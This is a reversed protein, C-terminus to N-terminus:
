MVFCFISIMMSLWATTHMKFLFFFKLTQLPLPKKVIISEKDRQLQCHKLSTAGIAFMSGAFM